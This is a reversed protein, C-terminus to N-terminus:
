NSVKKLPQINLLHKAGKARAKTVAQRVQVAENIDPLMYRKFADSAHGTGGRQIQEPSLFKGLATVTSHKTGGYLDVGKIGINECAKDWWIKFYKPGFQTGAKVGSKSKLHRFFFMSPMGKPNWLSEIMQCDEPALHIFKGKDGEKPDPYFIWGDSLNIHKEQVNRMEGPRVKPFLALLNIGLWIRPNIDKTIKWVENLIKEQDEMSVINRWGMKYKIDPFDPMELRSQRKERRVVWTWFDHLVAKWNALTKNTIGHDTSFFDDIEGETIDKIQMQDWSKGALELVREIHRIQKLTIDQTTKSKVFKERLSLFSLPQNKAWERQDFKGHDTQVRLYNLHREAEIMTKFRKTHTRGFRVECSGAWTMEPHVPCQLVGRGEIYKLSGKKGKNQCLFCKQRTYISGKMCYEGGINLNHPTSYAQKRNPTLTPKGNPLHGSM